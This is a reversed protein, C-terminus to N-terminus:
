VSVNRKFVPNNYEIIRRCSQIMLVAKTGAIKVSLQSHPCNKRAPPGNFQRIKLFILFFTSKKVFKINTSHKQRAQM